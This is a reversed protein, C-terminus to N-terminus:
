VARGDKRLEKFDCPVYQGYVYDKNKADCHFRASINNSDLDSHVCDVCRSTCITKNNKKSMKYGRSELNLLKNM